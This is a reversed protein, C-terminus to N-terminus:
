ANAKIVSTILTNVDTGTPGGVLVINDDLIYMGFVAGKTTVFAVRHNLITAFSVSGEDNNAAGNAAADLIAPTMTLGDLKMVLLLGALDAGQRIERGTMTSEVQQGAVEFRFLSSTTLAKNVPNSVLEYPDGIELDAVVDPTVVPTPGLTPSLSATTGSAAGAQASGTPGPSVNTSTGCAVVIALAALAAPIALSRVLHRPTVPRLLPIPM